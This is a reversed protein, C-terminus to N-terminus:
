GHRVNKEPLIMSLIGGIIMISASIYYSAVYGAPVQLNSVNVAAWALGDIYEGM